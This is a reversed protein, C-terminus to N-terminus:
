AVGGDTNQSEACKSCDPLCEAEAAETPGLLYRVAIVGLGLVCALATLLRDHAIFQAWAEFAVLGIVLVLYLRRSM